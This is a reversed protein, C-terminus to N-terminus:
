CYPVEFAAIRDFYAVSYDKLEVRSQWLHPLGMYFDFIIGDCIEIADSLEVPATYSNIVYHFLRQNGYPVTLCCFGHYMAVCFSAMCSAILCTYKYKHTHM